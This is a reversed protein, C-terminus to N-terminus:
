LMAEHSQTADESGFPCLLRHTPEAAVCAREVHLRGEVILGLSGIPVICAVRALIGGIARAVFGGLLRLSPMGLALPRPSPLLVHGM